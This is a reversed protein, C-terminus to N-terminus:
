NLKKRVVAIGGRADKTVALIYASRGVPALSPGTYLNADQFLSRAFQAEGDTIFWTTILEESYNKLTGDNSKLSYSEISSSDVDTTLHVQTNLPLNVLPVGEAFIQTVVPNTNKTVKSTDSVVIRKITKIDKGDSGHLIYEVLYSVGNFKEQDSKLNFIVADIPITVVFTDALGTWQDIQGPSVLSRQNHIVVKTPNNECSPEAGLSLGIDICVQASDKLIPGASLDSIVPTLTVMTGPNVEPQSSIITLIRPKEIKNFEPLDDKMCSSLILFAILLQTVKYM